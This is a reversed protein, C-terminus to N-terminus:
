SHIMNLSYIEGVLEFCKVDLLTELHLQKWVVVNPHALRLQLEDQLLGHRLLLGHDRNEDETAEDRQDECPFLQCRRPALTEVVLRGVVDEVLVREVRRFHKYAFTPPKKIQRSSFSISQDTNHSHRLYDFQHHILTVCCVAM